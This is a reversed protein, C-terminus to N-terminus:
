KQYAKLFILFPSSQDTITTKTIFLKEINKFTNAINEIDKDNIDFYNQNSLNLNLIQSCRDVGFYEILNEITYLELNSPTINNKNLRELAVSQIYNRNDKSTQSLTHLDRLCLQSTVFTGVAINPFMGNNPISYSDKVSTHPTSGVIM